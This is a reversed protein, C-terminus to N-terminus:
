IDQRQTYYTQSYKCSSQDSVKKFRDSTEKSFPFLILNVFAAPLYFVGLPRKIRDKVQNGREHDGNQRGAAVEERGWGLGEGEGCDGQGDVYGLVYVRGM